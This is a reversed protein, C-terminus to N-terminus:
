DRNLLTKRVFLSEPKKNEKISELIKISTIPLIPELMKAISALENIYSSLLGIAKQKDTKILKFPETESIMQDLKSVKDWIVDCALDFRYDNMAKVWEKDYELDNIILESSMYKQTMTLLRSVTNGLGNVLNATYVDHFTEYTMPSGGWPHIHRVVFYRLSEGGYYDILKIPDITNGLTKSMKVGNEGTVFGNVIIKSSNPLKAAFLMAQWMASQQRLNDQGCYQTPTGEIWYKKFNNKDEPWGLTSIYNALADFWVYMVHDEDHPVPVGWSMKSKQRSISFDKLGKEVFKKIENFRSSPLVFDKNSGYFDLLTSQFKSFKFFYNEEDIKKIDKNPHDPCKGKILDSDTKELECGVCYKAQYKKKYIFGNEYVLNWLDQAAKVHHLDTTRIFHVDKLIGLTPLLDRFIQSNKDVYEQPTLKMEKAAEYLKQGHEDTGTNFFVDYGMIKKYRALVDARVFELAHGVHPSANVYPLTTTIYFTKKM